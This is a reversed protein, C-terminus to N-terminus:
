FSLNTQSSGIQQIVRFFRWFGEGDLLQLISLHLTAKTDFFGRTGALV